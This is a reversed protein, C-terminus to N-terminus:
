KNLIDQIRIQEEGAFYGNSNSDNFRQVFIEDDLGCEYIEKARKIAQAKTRYEETDETWIVYYGKM